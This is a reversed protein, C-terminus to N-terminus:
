GSEPLVQSHYNGIDHIHFVVAKTQKTRTLGDYPICIIKKLSAPVPPRVPPHLAYHTVGKVQIELDFLPPISLLNHKTDPNLGTLGNYSIYTVGAAHAIANIDLATDEQVSSILGLITFFLMSQM